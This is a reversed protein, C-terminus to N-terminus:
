QALGALQVPEAPTVTQYPIRINVALGSPTLNDTTFAYHTGYLARLRELTNRLGIGRGAEGLSQDIGPGSDQVQLRLGDGDRTAAIRVTGGEESPDIAYKISNEVLPQLIFSPVLGQRAKDDIDYEVTLRDEFRASEIDLYFQLSELEQELPITGSRDDRLSHRLFRSLLQIMAGARATDRMRVLATIGNLTNFLFHPNLQYRLMRLQAERALSEAQLRRYREDDRRVQEERLKEHESLFLEYYTIGYYLGTWSLFVFLSGFYWYHYESWPAAEGTIWPLSLIRLYTWISSLVAVSLM